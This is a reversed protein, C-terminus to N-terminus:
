WHTTYSESQVHFRWMQFWITVTKGGNGKRFTQGAGLEHGLKRFASFLESQPNGKNFAQSESTPHTPHQLQPFCNNSAPCILDGSIYFIEANFPHCYKDTLNAPNRFWWTTHFVDLKPPVSASEPVPAITEEAATIPATCRDNPDRLVITCHILPHSVSFQPHLSLPM